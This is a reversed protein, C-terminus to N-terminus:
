SNLKQYATVVNKLLMTITMPGVGGPVPTIYSVKDKLAEFDCDGHPTAVDIVVASEKVMDSTIFYPDQASERRGIASILVDAQKTISPLNKTRSHCVTVTANRNLLLFILPKGVITSRNIIVARKGTLDIDLLDLITVIGQPTASSLTEDGHYLRYISAPSFGDVDKSPDIARIVAEENIHDPLPLQVLIGHITSDYNLQSILSCLEEQNISSPMNHQESEIGVRKCAKTKMRVYMKSGPDDGVLVTALKPPTGHKKILQSVETRILDQLLKSLTKGNIVSGECFDDFAIKLSTM